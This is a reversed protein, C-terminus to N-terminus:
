SRASGQPPLQANCTVLSNVHANPYYDHGRSHRTDTM